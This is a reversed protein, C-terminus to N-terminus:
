GTTKQDEKDVKSADFSANPFPPFEIKIIEKEDEGDPEREGDESVPPKKKDEEKPDKPDKGNENTNKRKQRKPKRKELEHDVKDAISRGDNIRLFDLDDFPFPHSCSHIETVLAIRPADKLHPFRELFKSKEKVTISEYNVLLNTQDNFPFGSSPYISYKKSELLSDYIKEANKFAVDDFVMRGVTKACKDEIKKSLMVFPVEKDDRKVFASYEPYFIEKTSLGGNFLASVLNSTFGYYFRIIEYTPIVVLGLKSKKSKEDLNDRNKFECTVNNFVWVKSSLQGQLNFYYTDSINILDALACEKGSEISIELNVLKGFAVHRKVLDEGSYISGVRLAALRRVNIKVMVDGGGKLFPHNKDKNFYEQYNTVEQFFVELLKEKNNGEVLQGIYKLRYFKDRELSTLKLLPM